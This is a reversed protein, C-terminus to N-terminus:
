SKELEIKLKKDFDNLENLTSSFFVVELDTAVILGKKSNKFNRVKVSAVGLLSM